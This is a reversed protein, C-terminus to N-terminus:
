VLYLTIVVFVIIYFLCKYAVDFIFVSFTIERISVPEGFCDRVWGGNWGCDIIVKDEVGGFVYFKSQGSPLMSFPDLQFYSDRVDIM